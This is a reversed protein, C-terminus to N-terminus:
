DPLGALLDEELTASAGDRSLALRLYTKGGLMKNWTDFMGKM